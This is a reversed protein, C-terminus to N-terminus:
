TVVVTTGVDAFAWLFEADLDHQRQCGGVPPHRTGRHDSVGLQRVRPPSHRPLRHPRDRDAPVPDHQAPLGPREVGHVDRLPQLRYPHWTSRQQVELRVRAVLSRDTRQRRGGVSTSRRPRVRRTPRLRLERAAAPRRRGHQRGTVPLVRDLRAHERHPLPAFSSPMRTQGSTSNSPVQPRRGRRRRLGPAGPLGDGRHPDSRSTATSRATTSARKRSGAPPLRCRRGTIVTPDVAHQDHLRRRSNRNSPCRRDIREHSNVRSTPLGIGAPAAGAGAVPVPVEQDVTPPSRSRTARVSTPLSSQARGPRLTVAGLALGLGLRRRHDAASTMDRFAIRRGRRLSPLRTMVYSPARRGGCRRTGCGHRCNHGPGGVTGGVPAGRRYRRLAGPLEEYHSGSWVLLMAGFVVQSIGGAALAVVGRRRRLPQARSRRGDDLDGYAGM